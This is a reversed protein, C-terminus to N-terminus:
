IKSPSPSNAIQDPTLTMLKIKSNDNYQANSQYKDYNQIRFIINSMVHSLFFLIDSDYLTVYFM